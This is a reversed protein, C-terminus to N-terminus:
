YCNPSHCHSSGNPGSHKRHWNSAYLYSFQLMCLLVTQSQAQPVKDTASLPLVCASPTRFSLASSPIWFQSPSLSLFSSFIAHYHSDQSVFLATPATHPVFPSLIPAVLTKTPFGAPLLGVPLDTHIHPPLSWFPRFFLSLSLHLARTVVTIFM